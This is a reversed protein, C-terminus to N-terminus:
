ETGAEEVGRKIKRTEKTEQETETRTEEEQVAGLQVEQIADEENKKVYEEMIENLNLVLHSSEFM